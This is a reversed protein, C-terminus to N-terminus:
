RGAEQSDAPVDLLLAVELQGDAKFRMLREAVVFTHEYGLVEWAVHDGLTPLFVVEPIHPLNPAATPDLSGTLRAIVARAASTVGYSVHVASQSQEM